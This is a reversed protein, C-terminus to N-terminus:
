RHEDVIRRVREISESDGLVMMRDGPRLVTGGSPIIFRDKKGILVVLAGEPLGLDVIQKGAARSHETVDIEVLDSELSATSVFELPVPPPTELEADVKLWRAVPMILTGQLLVSTLVIFFVLHFIMDSHPIGAVMPFTALIIPAAGRLGVWSVMLKERIQMRGFALSIFVSVPRAVIMLFTAVLLGVGIIPLMRSPFVLLGLTLFMAIQMLWALGDHFRIVSRRHIFEHNGMILGALYVALFGNGDLSATLGYTLLVLAVTLVTYLGDHGPRFRNIFWVAGRGVAFGIVLGLSMQQFFMPILILVPQASNALLQILGITLFVAMPDNSGSELELLPELDGKLRVNRSRLISFVAAADTSSVIAGLLLGQLLSFGLVITAFWGVMVATILIGVTSLAFGRSFVPRVVDWDTSLGGDFLIFALAMVGILQSLWPDDFYIGGPGEAGALIGIVLFLLLAPVGLWGSAKSAIISLLVLISAVLLLNDISIM